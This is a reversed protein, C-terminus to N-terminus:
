DWGYLRNNELVELKNEEIWTEINTDREDEIRKQIDLNNYFTYRYDLSREISKKQRSVFYSSCKILEEIFGKDINDVICNTIDFNMLLYFLRDRINLTDFGNYGKCYIYVESSSPHSTKPKIISVNDFICTLLYILSITFPETFPNFAKFIFKKGLPLVVLGALVQGYNIHGTYAEQENFMNSPIRVGVDGTILDIDKLLPNCEYSKINDQDTIDGTKNIGFLWRNPYNKILGFRDDLVSSFKRRERRLPNLSQAYWNYYKISTRTFIYHNISSIFSGPAECIHFTKITDKNDDIINENCLMEYMKTWGNTTMETKYKWSIIRKMNKFM